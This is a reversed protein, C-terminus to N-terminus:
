EGLLNGLEDAREAAAAVARAMLKRFDGAELVGIGAETTGGPSTVQRRLEAPSAQSELAMKAAGFATQLVLLRAAEASLGQARGAEELAEMQLFFYAPGSGSVATVADMLTEDDLWQTLGAARLLSEALARQAESVRPNAYLATAGSQVLAPTNPMARVVAAEGGLWRNLDPERVGAAISIFVPRRDGIVERLDEAVTKMIQPKIALVVADAERLLEHNDRAAHIRFEECLAALRDNDPEAVRIREAPYDDAILGGILSRAMNGGGIFGIIAQNM